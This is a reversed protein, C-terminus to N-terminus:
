LYRIDGSKKKKKQYASISAENESLLRSLSVPTLITANNSWSSTPDSEAWPAPDGAMNSAKDLIVLQKPESELTDCEEIGSQAIEKLQREPQM